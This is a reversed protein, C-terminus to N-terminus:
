DFFHLVPNIGILDNDYTHPKFTGESLLNALM